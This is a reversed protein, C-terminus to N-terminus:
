RRRRRKRPRIVEQEDEEEVDEQQDEGAEDAEAGDAADADQMQELTSQVIALQGELFTELYEKRRRQLPGKCVTFNLAKPLLKLSEKLSRRRELTKKLISVFLQTDQEEEIKDVVHAPVGLHTLGICGDRSGESLRLQIEENPNESVAVGHRLLLQANNYIGAGLSLPTGAKLDKLAVLRYHEAMSINAPSSSVLLHYWPLITDAPASAWWFDRAWRLSKLDCKLDLEQLAQKAAEWNRLQEEAKEMDEKLSTSALMQQFAEPWGLAGHTSHEADVAMPHFSDHHLAHARCLRLCLLFGQPEEVNLKELRKHAAHVVEDELAKQGSLLHQEPVSFIVKGAPVDRTLCLGRHGGPLDRLELNGLGEARQELWEHLSPRHDEANKKKAKKARLGQKGEGKPIRKGKKRVKVM